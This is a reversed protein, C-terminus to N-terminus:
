ESPAPRAEDRDSLLPPARGPAQCRKARNPRPPLIQWDASDRAEGPSLSPNTNLFHPHNKSCWDPDIEFQPRLCHRSAFEAVWVSDLLSIDPAQGRGVAEILYPRLENLAMLTFDLDIQSQSHNQNWLGAAQELPERWREDAIVVRLTISAPADSSSPQAVFTGRGPTRILLGEVVMEKLAQRM